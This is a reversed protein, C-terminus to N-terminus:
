EKQRQRTLQPPPGGASTSGARRARAGSEAGVRQRWGDFDLMGYGEVEAFKTPRDMYDNHTFVAFRRVHASGHHSWLRYVPVDGASVFRNEHVRNGTVSAFTATENFLIHEHRSNVFANGAITNDFGNHLQIGGPNDILQNAM